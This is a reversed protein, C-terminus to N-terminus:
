KHRVKLGILEEMPDFDRDNHIIEFKNEICLTGIIVDITKRITIGNSRLYRYNYITQLTINKELLSYCEFKELEQKFDDYIKNQALPIGQLIEIMILDAIIVIENQICNDLINTHKSDVGKFYDIWVSTDALIM